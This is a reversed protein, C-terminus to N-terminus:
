TGNISQDYKKRERAYLFLTIDMFRGGTSSTLAVNTVNRSANSGSIKYSM